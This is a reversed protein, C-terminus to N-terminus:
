SEKENQKRWMKVFEGPTIIGLEPFKLENNRFDKINSTILYKSSSKVALEIFINDKEDKLNPRLLFFIKHKEAFHFILTLVDSIENQKLGTLKMINARNLVDEYEYFVPISLGLKIKEEYILNLIFYSAGKNNSLAQVLVNTDMTVIM